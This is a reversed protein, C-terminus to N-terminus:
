SQPKSSMIHSIPVIHVLRQTSADPNAKNEPFLQCNFRGLGVGVKVYSKMRQPAPTARIGRSGSPAPNWLSPARGSIHSLAPDAAVAGMRFMRHDALSGGAPARRPLNTV